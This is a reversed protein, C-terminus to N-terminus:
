QKLGPSGHCSKRQGRDSSAQSGPQAHSHEACAARHRMGLVVPLRRIRIESDELMPLRRRRLSLPAVPGLNGRLLWLPQM